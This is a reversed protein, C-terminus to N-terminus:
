NRVTRGLQKYAWAIAYNLAVMGLLAGVEAPSLDPIDVRPVFAAQTCTGTQQDMQVCEYVYRQM